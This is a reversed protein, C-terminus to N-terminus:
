LRTGLDTCEMVNGLWEWPAHGSFMLACAKCIFSAQMLVRGLCANAAQLFPNTAHLPPEKAVSFGTIDCARFAEFRTMGVEFTVSSDKRNPDGISSTIECWNRTGRHTHTHAPTHTHTHSHSTQM